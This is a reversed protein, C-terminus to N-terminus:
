VQWMKDCKGSKAVSIMNHWVQLRIDCKDYKTVSTTNQGVQWMRDCKHKTFSEEKKMSKMKAYIDCNTVSELNQWLQWTKDYKGHKECNYINDCNDFM